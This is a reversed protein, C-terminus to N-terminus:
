RVVHASIKQVQNDDRPIGYCSYPTYQEFCGDFRASTNAMTVEVYRIKQSSFPVSKAGNGSKNLSIGYVKTKGKQPVVTIAAMSGKSRPAMDLVVRLKTKKKRLHKPALRYTAATLHDTRTKTVKLRSKKATLTVSGRLPGSPYKQAKGEAYTEQPRRNAVAYALFQQAATTKTAKLVSELAQWSYLDPAGISGDVKKMLDLVLAPMPGKKTRYKETLFRFFSWTGYHFTGGNQFTDVPTGPSTLPSNRLYQVNDNVDDYVEDEAWTATAELFWSDEYADYAYQTAHFYEHAATVEINELASNPFGAYDDDLVCYAWRDYHMAGSTPDAQDSTCYGYAGRNGIEALYIDIREDGGRAGDPLPERYGADVYTDHVETMVRVVTDVYDPIGNAGADGAANKTDALPPADGNANGAAVYHVCLDPTCVPPAEPIGYEVTFSDGDSADTPRALYGAAAARDAESLSDYRVALDRLAMTAEVGGAAVTARAQARTAPTFIKRVVALADDAAQRDAGVRVQKASAAPDPDPAASASSFTLASSLATASALASVAALALVRRARRTIM